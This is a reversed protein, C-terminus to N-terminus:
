GEDGHVIVADMTDAKCHWPAASKLRGARTSRAPPRRTDTPM